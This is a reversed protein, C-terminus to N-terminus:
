EGSQVTRFVSVTAGKIIRSATVLKMFDWVAKDFGPDAMGKGDGAWTDMGDYMRITSSWMEPTSFDAFPKLLTFWEDVFVQAHESDPEMPMAGAIRDGLAKWQAGYAEADFSSDANDWAKAWLAKEEPSFYRDTVAQWDETQRNIMRDGSEILACFTEADVVDGQNLRSLAFRVVNRAREVQAAEEDLLKLQAGLMASLDVPHGTFLKKMQSLSLGASKLLVIHHLRLLEREGFLRRGSATRLPAIFGKDEYFRLTRSTLGTRRVVEDIPLSDIM